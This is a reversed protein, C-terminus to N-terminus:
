LREWSRATLHERVHTIYAQAGSDYWNGSYYYGLCGWLDGGKYGNGLWTAKGDYCQRLIAGYMDLNFATSVRSLPSTGRWVTSKIQMLGYSIGGDGAAAQVWSSENVAEARMVDEDFGWKHAAWQILEDTTGTFAGTVLPVYPSQNNSAARFSSLETATPVRSNATANQPRPEWASRRVRANAADDSLIPSGPVRTTAKASGAAPAPAPAPAPTPAPTPTPAPAPTPTPTPAPAPTPTPTPAPNSPEVGAAHHQAVTAASLATRFVAVDDVGGGFNGGGSSSAGIRFPSTTNPLSRRSPATGEIKGNIYLRLNAADYTVAVHYWRGATLATAGSVTDTGTSARREFALRQRRSGASDPALLLAYGGGPGEKSIVRRWRTAQGTTSPKFWGEFSFPVVDAQDFRDGFALHDDVGDLTVARDTTGVPAPAQGLRAGNVYSGTATAKTDRVTTGSSEGLRWLSTLGRTSGVSSAYDASAAGPLSLLASATALALLTKKM